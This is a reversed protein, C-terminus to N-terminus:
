IRHQPTHKSNPAPRVCIHLAASHLARQEEDRRRAARIGADCQCFFGFAPFNEIFVAKERPTPHWPHAQVWDEVAALCVVAVLCLWPQERQRGRAQGSPERLPFGASTAVAPSRWVEERRRATAFVSSPAEEAASRWARWSIAALHRHACCGRSDM